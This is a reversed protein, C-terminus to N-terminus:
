QKCALDEIVLAKVVIMGRTMERRYFPNMDDIDEENPGSEDNHPRKYDKKQASPFQHSFMFFCLGLTQGYSSTQFVFMYNIHLYTIVSHTRSTAISLACQSQLSVHRPIPNCQCFASLLTPQAQLSLMTDFHSTQLKTEM